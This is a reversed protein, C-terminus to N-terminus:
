FANNDEGEIDSLLMPFSGLQITNPAADGPVRGDDEPTRFMSDFLYVLCPISHEKQYKTPDWAVGGVSGRGQAQLLGVKEQELQEYLDAQKLIREELLIRKQYMEPIVAQKALGMNFSVGESKLERTGGVRSPKYKNINSDADSEQGQLSYSFGKPFAYGKGPQFDNDPYLFLSIDLPNGGLSVYAAMLKATTSGPAAGAGSAQDGLVLGFREQTVEETEPDRAYLLSIKGIRELEANIVTARSSFDQRERLIFSRFARWQGERFTDQYSFSPM